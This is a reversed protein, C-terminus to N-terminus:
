SSRDTSLVVLGRVMDSDASMLEMSVQAGALVVVTPNVIDAVCFNRQCPHIALVASHASRSACTVRNWARDNTPGSPAQKGLRAAEASSARPGPANTFLLGMKKGADSRTALISTPLSGRSTWGDSSGNDLWNM